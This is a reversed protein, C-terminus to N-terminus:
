RRSRLEVSGSASCSLEHMTPLSPMGRYKKGERTSAKTVLGRNVLGQLKEYTRLRLMEESGHAANRETLNAHVIGFLAKFEYWSKKSLLAVLEEAILDPGHHTSSRTPIAAM